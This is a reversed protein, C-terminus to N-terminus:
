LLKKKVDLIVKNGENFHAVAMEVRIDGQNSRSYCKNKPYYRTVMNHFSENRQSTATMCFKQSNNAYTTFLNTLEKLLESNKLVVTHFKEVKHSAKQLKLWSTCWKRCEMHNGFLHLPISLLVEKLHASNKKNQAVAYKFLKIIHKVVNSKNLEKFKGSKRLGYVHKGFNKNLHNPDSFKFIKLPNNKRIHDISVTDDDGVVGRVKMKDRKLGDSNNVLEAAVEAEMAKASGKHNVRCDHDTKDHGIQCKACRRNRTQYDLIKGSILGIITGYGNLSDYCHGTSRRSWGMDYSIIINVFEVTHADFKSQDSDNLHKKAEQLEAYMEPYLEKSVEM